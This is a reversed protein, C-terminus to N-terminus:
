FKGAEVLKGGPNGLGGYRGAIAKTARTTLLMEYEQGGINVTATREDM